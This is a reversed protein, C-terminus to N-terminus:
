YWIWYNIYSPKFSKIINEPLIQFQLQKLVFIMMKLDFNKSVKWRFFFFLHWSSSHIMFLQFSKNKLVNLSLLLLLRSRMKVQTCVKGSKFSYSKSVHDTRESLYLKETSKGGTHKIGSVSHWPMPTASLTVAECSWGGQELGPGATIDTHLTSHGEWLCKLKRWTRQKEEVEWVHSM